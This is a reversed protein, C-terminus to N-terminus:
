EDVASDAALLEDDPRRANLDRRNRQGVVM